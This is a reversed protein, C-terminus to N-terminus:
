HWNKNTQLKYRLPFAESVSPCLSLDKSAKLASEWINLNVFEKLPQEIDGLRQIASQVQHNWHTLLEDPWPELDTTKPGMHWTKTDHHTSFIRYDDTIEEGEEIDRVAIEFGFGTSLTNAHDSHNMYKGLDWSIVLNGLFDEYAYKEVYDKLRIDVQIFQDTPIVIDLGDQVFTITGKKIPQTAFLGYGMEESIWVVRAQPIIM